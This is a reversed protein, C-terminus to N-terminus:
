ARSVFAIRIVGSPIRLERRAISEAETLNRAIVNIALKGRTVKYTNMTTQNTDTSLRVM